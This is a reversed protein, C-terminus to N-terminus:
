VRILNFLTGERKMAGIMVYVMLETRMSRAHLNTEHLQDLIIGLRTCYDEKRQIHTYYVHMEAMIRSRMRICQALTGESISLDLDDVNWLLLSVIAAREIVSIKMNRYSEHYRTQDWKSSCEAWTNLFGQDATSERESFFIEPRTFDVYTTRTMQSKHEKELCYKSTAEELEFIFLTAFFSRFMTFKDSDEILAFEEFTDTCFQHLFPLNTTWIREVLQVDCPLLQQADIPDDHKPKKASMPLLCLESYFRRSRSLHYHAAIRTLLPLRNAHLQLFTDDEVADKSPGPSDIANEPTNRVHEALMGVEFCRRLRCSRCIRSSEPVRKLECNGENKCSYQMNEIVSRRFFASCARCSDVGSNAGESKTGCILCFRGDNKTSKG